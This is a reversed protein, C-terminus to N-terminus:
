LEQLKGLRWDERLLVQGQLYLLLLSGSNIGGISVIVVGSGLGLLPEKM